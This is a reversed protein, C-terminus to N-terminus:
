PCTFLLTHDVNKDESDAPCLKYCTQGNLEKYAPSQFQVFNVLTEAPTLNVFDTIIDYRYLFKRTQVDKPYVYVNQYEYNCVIHGTKDIYIECPRGDPDLLLIRRTYLDDTQVEGTTLLASNIPGAM